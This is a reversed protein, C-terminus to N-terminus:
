CRKFDRSDNMCIVENQLERIRTRLEMITNQDETLKRRSLEEVKLVHSKKLEEMEHLSKIRTERLDRNQELLEEQFLLQDRRLQDCGTITHDIERRQSEIIGNLQQTSTRDSDAQM